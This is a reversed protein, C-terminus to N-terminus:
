KPVDVWDKQKPPSKRVPRIPELSPERTLASHVEPQELIKLLLDPDATVSMSGLNEFITKNRPQRGCSSIAKTIVKNALEGTQAPTPFISPHSNARLDFVITENKGSARACELAERVKARARSSDTLERV